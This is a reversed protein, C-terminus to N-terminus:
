KQMKSYDIKKLVMVMSQYDGVPVGGPVVIPLRVGASCLVSADYVEGTDEDQWRGAPIDRLKVRRMEPNANQQTVFASFVVTDPLAFQWACVNGQFPSELRTFTGQQTVRRIKKVRAIQRRIEALDEPTQQSLDLEYGFNGSMAVDGRMKMSTVRAVQHNPVASVHAGMASAPYVVSTGYQIKLREAADTDDSTWTQPMYYLMGPDFRGGGGSCSEFLVEPFARTIEEMVRYVGLMYRHPVEGQREPPLARSGYEAFNRNM